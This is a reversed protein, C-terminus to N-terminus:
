KQSKKIKKKRGAPETDSGADSESEAPSECSDSMASCSSSHSSPRSPPSSRCVVDSDSSDDSQENSRYVKFSEPNSLVQFYSTIQKMKGESSSPKSRSKGARRRKSASSPPTRKEKLSFISLVPVDSKRGHGPSQEGPPANVKLNRSKRPSETFFFFVLKSSLRYPYM